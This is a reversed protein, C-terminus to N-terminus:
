FVTSKQAWLTYLIITASIGRLDVYKPLDNCHFFQVIVEVVGTVGFDIPAGVKVHDVGTAFDEVFDFGDFFLGVGVASAFVVGQTGKLVFVEAENFREAGACPVTTVQVVCGGTFQNRGVSVEVVEVCEHAPEVVETSCMLQLPPYGGKRKTCVRSQNLPDILGGRDTSPPYGGVLHVACLSLREIM